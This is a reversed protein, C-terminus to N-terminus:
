YRTHFQELVCTAINANKAQREKVLRMLHVGTKIDQVVMDGELYRRGMELQAEDNGQESLEKMLKTASQPNQRGISRFGIQALELKAKENGQSSSLEFFDEAKRLDKEVGISRSYMCGLEYQSNPNGQEASLRFLLAAERIDDVGAGLCYDVAGYRNASSYATAIDLGRHKTLLYAGLKYQAEADGQDALTQTPTIESEM